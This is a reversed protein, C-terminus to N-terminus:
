DGELTTLYKIFDNYQSSEKEYGHSPLIVTKLFNADRWEEDPGVLGCILNELDDFQFSRLMEIPFVANFGKRFAGVQLKVTLDFTQYVILELYENINTLTVEKDKGGEILEIDSNDPNYFKLGYDSIRAGNKM